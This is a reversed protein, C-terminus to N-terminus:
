ELNLAPKKQGRHCTTCNVVAKRSKLGEIEPLLEGNITGVLRFMDRTISKEVKEDASWDSPNHCHECTVGLSRSFGFKMVNLLRGAPMHKLVEISLNAFVSDAPLAERGEIDAKIAAIHKDWNETLSDGPMEHTQVPAPLEHTVALSLLIALAALSTLLYKKM